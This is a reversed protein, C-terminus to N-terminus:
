PKCSIQIKIDWFDDNAQFLRCQLHCKIGYTHLLPFSKIESLMIMLLVTNTLSTIECKIVKEMM